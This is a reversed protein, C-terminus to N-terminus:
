SEGAPCAEACVVPGHDWVTPFHKGQLVEGPVVEVRHGMIHSGGPEYRTYGPMYHVAIAPRGRESANSPSGHWTLCHHFMVQGKRVECPVKRVIAGHPLEDLEPTPEFTDPDTGITGNRYAGWTHSGPAMWMCGNEITADDLALWASVLDPPQIIPWYPHDQHWDTPGGVRPPKYQVQDHWVRVVEHQMLQAVMACISPHYLHRYFVDDAQWINVIQYVVKPASDGLLNRNSEAGKRRGDLVAFMRERLVDAENPTYVVPGILFGQDEFETIQAGTLM